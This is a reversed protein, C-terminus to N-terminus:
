HRHGARMGLRVALSYRGRRTHAHRVARLVKRRSPPPALRAADIGYREVLELHGLMTAKTRHYTARASSRLRVAIVADPCHAIPVGRQHLRFSFETDSCRQGTEEFGGMQLYLDRMIAFAGGSVCPVGAIRYSGAHRRRTSGPQVLWPNLTRYDRVLSVVPNREVAAGAAALWGPMPMDDADCFVIFPASAERVGTNKAAAAGRPLDSGDIVRLRGTDFPWTASAAFTRVVAVTDDTSGDDVVIVECRDAGEQTAIGTLAEVITDAANLAPM